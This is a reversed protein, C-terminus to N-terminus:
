TGAVIAALGAFMGLKLLRSVRAFAEKDRARRAIVAGCVLAPVVAGLMIWGYGHGYIGRVAPLPLAIAVVLMAASAVRAATEKGAIVALTRAGAARDGKVDEVGKILERCAVFAFAIMMPISAASARGALWAGAYLASSSITAVMLNGLPWMRKCWRAYAFLALQWAVVLIALPLALTAFALSIAAASVVVYLRAAAHTSLRGSPIPRRPKNVRDIDADFIDNAVNGAGTALACALALWLVAAIDRGGAAHFGTAVAFGAALMNHPRLIEVYAVPRASM